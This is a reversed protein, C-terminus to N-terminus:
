SKVAWLPGLPSTKRSTGKGQRAMAARVFGKFLPHCEFSRSKFEPHFQSALFWPHSPIEVMEILGGDPSRGSLALGEKELQERYANNFEYRHRHRESIKRKGYLRHALSGAACWDQAVRERVEGHLDAQLGRRGFLGCRYFRGGLVRTRCGALPRVQSDQWTCLHWVAGSSRAARRLLRQLGERLGQAFVRGEVLRAAARKHLIGRM